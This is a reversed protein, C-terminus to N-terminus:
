LSKGDRILKAQRRSFRVKGAKGMDAIIEGNNLRDIVNVHTLNIITSRNARVFQKHELQKEIQKLTKSLLLTRGDLTSIEAYGDDAHIKVIQYPHVPWYHNQDSFLILSQDQEGSMRFRKLRLLARSLKDAEIPKLLYGVAGRDIAEIAHEEHATTIIVPVQAVNADPFLDFGSEEPLGLDVFVADLGGLLLAKRAETLNAAQRAEAEPAVESLLRALEDRAPEEDDVILFRM